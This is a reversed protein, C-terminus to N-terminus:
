QPPCKHNSIEMKQYCDVTHSHEPQKQSKTYKTSKTATAARLTPAANLQTQAFESCTSTRAVGGICVRNASPASTTHGTGHRKSNSKQNCMIQRCSLFMAQTPCKCWCVSERHIRATTAPRIQQTQISSMNKCSHISM